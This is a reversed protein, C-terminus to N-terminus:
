ARQLFNDQVFINNNRFAVPSDRIAMAKLSEVGAVFWPRPLFYRRAAWAPPSQGVEESLAVAISALLAELRADLGRTPPLLLLCGDATKRFEDVLELFHITWSDFGDALVKLSAAVTCYDSAAPRDPVLLLVCRRGLAAAARELSDITPNGGGSELRRLTLRSIGASEAFSRESLLKKQRLHSFPLRTM